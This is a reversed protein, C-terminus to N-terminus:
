NGYYVINVYSLYLLDFRKESIIQVSRFDNGDCDVLCCCCCQHFNYGGYAINLITGIDVPVNSTGCLGRKLVPKRHLKKKNFNIREEGERKKYHLSARFFRSFEGVSAVM